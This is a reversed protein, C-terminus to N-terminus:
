DSTIEFPSMGPIEKLVDVPNEANIILEEVLTLYCDFNMSHFKIGIGENNVWTIEGLVKLFIKQNKKNRVFSIQINDSIKNNFNGAVFMGSLSLNRIQCSEYLHDGIIVHAQEYYAVRQFKRQNSNVM